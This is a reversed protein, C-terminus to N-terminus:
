AAAIEARTPPNAGRRGCTIRAASRAMETVVAFMAASEAAAVAAAFVEPVRGSRIAEVIEDVTM